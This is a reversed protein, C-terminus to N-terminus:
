DAADDLKPALVFRVFSKPTGLDYEILLPSQEGLKMTLLSQEMARVFKNLYDLTFRADYRKILKSEDVASAATIAGGEETRSATPLRRRFTADGKGSIYVISTCVGSADKDTQRVEFGIDAVKLDSGLKIMRKLEPINVETHFDYEIDDLPMQEADQDYTNLVFLMVEEHTMADCTRMIVDASGKQQTLEICQLSAVNKLCMNLVKTDLCFSVGKEFLKGDCSIRAQVICIHHPDVTDVNLLLSGEGEGAVVRFLVRGLIAGTIDIMQKIAGTQHFVIKFSLESEDTKQRKNCLAMM